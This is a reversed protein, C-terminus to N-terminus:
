LLYSQRVEDRNLVEEPTGTYRIKGEAMYHCTSAAKRIFEMNHEILFISKGAQKMEDMIRYLTEFSEPSLGSSPEDLLVLEYDGLLVGALSLVRQQAFSLSSAPKGANQWLEALEDSVKLKEYILNELDLKASKNWAPKLMNHFPRETKLPRAQLILHDIVRLEEFVKSGQFMRGIGSAAITWPATKTCDISGEAGYYIISGSGPRLLGSILNFLSTKGAGNGGVLATVEGQELQMSLGDIVNRYEKGFAGKKGSYGVSFSKQIDQIDLIINDMM